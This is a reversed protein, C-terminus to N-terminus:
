CVKCGESTWVQRVESWYLCSKMVVFLTYNVDTSENYKLLIVEPKPPPTTPLHKVGVCSRKQRGNSNRCARLSHAQRKLQKSLPLKGAPEARRIGVFHVGVHGTEASSFSFLYPNRTCNFYGMGNKYSECSSGNPVRTTLSYNGVSPRAAASVFVELITDNQPILEVFASEFEKDIVIKHYRIPNSDNFPKVFFHRSSENQMNKSLRKDPIYMEVPDKIRSINLLSGERTKLDISVVSTKINKSVNTWVYPNEEIILVQPSLLLLLSQIPCECVLVLVCDLLIISSASSPSFLM